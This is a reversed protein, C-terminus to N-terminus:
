ASVAEATEVTPASKPQHSGTPLLIVVISLWFAARILFFMAKGKTRRRNEPTNSNFRVPLSSLGTGLRSENKGMNLAFLGCIQTFNSADMLDSRRPLHSRCDQQCCVM